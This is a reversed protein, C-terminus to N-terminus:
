VLMGVPELSYVVSFVVERHLGRAPCQLGGQFQTTGTDRGGDPGGGKGWEEMCSFLSRVAGLCEPSKDLAIGVIWSSGGREPFWHCAWGQGLTPHFFFVGASSVNGPM